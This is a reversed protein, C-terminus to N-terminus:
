GLYKIIGCAIRDGSNGTKKSEPNDGRGMDDPDKHIIMSRGIIGYPGRLPLYSSIIEQNCRGASDVRINGLDGIHSNYHNLPGHHRQFPNYHSGLSNCGDSLNNLEHVHFGHLGPPLDVLDLRIITKDSLETIIAYGHYSESKSKNFGFFHCIAEQNNMQNEIVRPQVSRFDYINNDQIRDLFQQNHHNNTLRMSM